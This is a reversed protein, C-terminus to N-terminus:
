RRKSAARAGLYQGLPWAVALQFGELGPQVRAHDAITSAIARALAFVSPITQVEFLEYLQAHLICTRELEEKATRDHSHIVVADPVYEIRHGALLVDRSWALDEAIPVDCFPHETWV